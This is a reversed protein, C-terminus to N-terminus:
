LWLWAPLVRFHLLPVAHLVCPVASPVGGGGWRRDLLNCVRVVELVAMGLGRLSRRRPRPTQADSGWGSLGDGVSPAAAGERDVAPRPEDGAGVGVVGAPGPKTAAGGVGEAPPSVGEVVVVGGGGAGGGGGSSGGVLTAVDLSGAEAPRVRPNFRVRQTPSVVLAAYGREM